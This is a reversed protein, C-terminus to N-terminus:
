EHGPLPDRKVLRAPHTANSALMGDDGAGKLSCNLALNELPPRWPSDM